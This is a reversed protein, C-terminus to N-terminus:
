WYNQFMFKQKNYGRAQLLDDNYASWATFSFVVCFLLTAVACPFCPIQFDM